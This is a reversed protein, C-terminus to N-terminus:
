SHGKESFRRLNFRCKHTLFITRQRMILGAILYGLETMGAQGSDKKSNLNNRRIIGSL